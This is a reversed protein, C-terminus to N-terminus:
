FLKLQAESIVPKRFHHVSLHHAERAGFHKRHAAHFLAQLQQAYEGQGVMRQGFETSSDKGGRVDRIRSWVKMRREPYHTELWEDFLQPLPQALRLMVWGAWQAGASAAAAVIAPIETDNLGPIVPGILVGVPIGAAALAEVAKLRRHPRAARPELKGALESSLSTVSLNVAIADHAALQKLVDIDRMVLDSKTLMSVPNRFEAFVQLCRRTIELKREVPQYCDTNGSLAVVQPQWSRSSLKDRLLEPARAKVMIRTEFDLGASFSLYEHSPRAYCYACGHECGRYPNLSFRFGVDPSNNEALITKSDDRYFRTPVKRPEEGDELELEISLQEFRNLTNSDAGRGHM